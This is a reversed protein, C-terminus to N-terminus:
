SYRKVVCERHASTKCMACHYFSQYPDRRRECVDCYNYKSYLNDEQYTLTLPHDDCRHLIKSPLRLCKWDVAFNCDRCTFAGRLEDGCGSCLGRNFPYYYLRHEHGQLKPTDSVESDDNLVLNHQHSRHKIESAAVTTDEGLETEKIVVFASKAKLQKDTHELEFSFHFFERNQIAFNVHVIYNCEICFYVGHEANVEEPCAECKRTKIAHQGLIFTHSLLHHHRPFKLIPSLSICGEHVTLSCKSCIYTACRGETGCADCIFPVQKWFLTFPHEHIRGGKVVPPPSAFYRLGETNFQLVLSHQTHLFHNIELPLDVCKKHILIGNGLDFYASDWLWKSCACCLADNLKEPFNEVSVLADKQPVDELMGFSKLLELSHERHFHHNMEAPAEACMRDLFFGCDACSFSPGSILEGCASCYVKESEPSQKEIFVLPHQHSFLKLAM